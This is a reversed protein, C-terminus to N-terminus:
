NLVVLVILYSLLVINYHVWFGAASLDMSQSQRHLISLSVSDVVVDEQTPGTLLAIINHESELRAQMRTVDLSCAVIHGLATACNFTSNSYNSCQHCFFNLSSNAFHVNHGVHPSVIVYLAM